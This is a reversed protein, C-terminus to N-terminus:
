HGFFGDDSSYPFFPLIHVTSIADTLHDRCFRTLVKLPKEDDHLLSNGYTILCTTKEDWLTTRPAASIQECHTEAIVEIRDLLEDADEDPYVYTLRELIQQRNKLPTAM